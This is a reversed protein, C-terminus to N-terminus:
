RTTPVFEAQLGYRFGQFSVGPFNTVRRVLVVNGGIRLNDLVRRLLSGGVTWVHDVRRFASDGLTYPLVYKAEELGWTLRGFGRLPLAFSLVSGWRTSVFANRRLSGRYPAPSAGYAVDRDCTLELRGVRPIPGAVAAAAAPGRYAPLTLGNTEPYLRIGALLRGTVFAKESFEFGALARYSRSTRGGGFARLFQHEYAEGLAVVTTRSSARYRVTSTTATEDRDLMDSIRYGAQVNRGYRYKRLTQAGSIRLRSSLRLNVGATGYGDQRLVRQDLDIWLRQKAQSGGGEAFFTAIGLDFEGRAKGGFDTSRESTQRQYYNLDLWGDSTLRIRRGLPVATSLGPRLTVVNDPVLASGAGYVNTDVGANRLELRPTLYLPGLRYRGLRRKRDSAREAATAPTMLVAVLSTAVAFVLATRSRSM